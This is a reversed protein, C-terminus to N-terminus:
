LTYNQVVTLLTHTKIQNPLTGCGAAGSVRAHILTDDKGLSLGTESLCCQEVANMFAAMRKM